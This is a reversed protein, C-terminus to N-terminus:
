GRVDLRAGLPAAPAPARTGRAGYALTGLAAQDAFFAREEDTLVDWLTTHAPAPPTAAPLRVNAARAPRPGAEAPEPHPARHPVARIEM